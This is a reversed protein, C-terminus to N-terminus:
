RVILQKTVSETSIIYLGSKLVTNFQGNILNGESVKSGTLNYIQIPGDQLNSYLTNNNFYLKSESKLIGTGTTSGQSFESIKFCALYFYKSTNANNPGAKTTMVMTGSETPQINDIAAIEGTNSAPNLSASDANLGSIVYMTERNETTGARSAFIKFSYKSQPKLGTFTITAKSGVGQGYINDQIQVNSPFDNIAPATPVTAGSSNGQTWGALVIHGALAGTQDYIDQDANYLFDNWPSGSPFSTANYQCDMLITSTQANSAAAFFISFLLFYITKM